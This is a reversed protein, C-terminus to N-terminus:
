DRINITYFEGSTPSTTPTVEVFIVEWQREMYRSDVSDAALTVTEGESGVSGPTRYIPEGIFEEDYFTLYEKRRRSDYDETDTVAVQISVEVDLSNDFRVITPNDVLKSTYIWEKTLTETGSWESAQIARGDAM